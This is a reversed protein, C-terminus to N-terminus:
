FAGRRLAGFWLITGAVAGGIFGVTVLGLAHPLGGEPFLPFLLAFAGGYLAGGVLGAVSVVSLANLRGRRSLVVWGIRGVLAELALSLPLGFFLVFFLSHAYSGSSDIVGIQLAWSTTLFWALAIGVAPGLVGALFLRIQSNRRQESNLGIQNSPRELSKPKQQVLLM